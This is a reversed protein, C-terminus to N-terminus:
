ARSHNNEHRFGSLFDMEKVAANGKTSNSCSGRRAMADALNRVGIAFARNSMAQEFSLRQSLELRTYARRLVSVSDVSAM